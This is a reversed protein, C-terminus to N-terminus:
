VNFVTRKRKEFTTNITKDGNPSEGGSSNMLDEKYYDIPNVEQDLSLSKSIKRSNALSLNIRKKKKVNQQSVIVTSNALSSNASAFVDNSDDTQMSQNNTTKPTKIKDNSRNIRKAQPFGDDSEDEDYDEELLTTSNADPGDKNLEAALEEDIKNMGESFPHRKSPTFEPSPSKESEQSEKDFDAIFSLRSPTKGPSRIPSKSPTSKIEAKNVLLKSNLTSKPTKNLTINNYGLGLDHKSFRERTNIPSLIGRNQRDFLSPRHKTVPSSSGTMARTLYPTNSFSLNLRSQSNPKSISKTPQKNVTNQLQLKEKRIKAIDAKLKEIASENLKDKTNFEQKLRNITLEYNHCKKLLEESDPPLSSTKLNASKFSRVKMIALRIMAKRTEDEHALQDLKRIIEFQDDVIM